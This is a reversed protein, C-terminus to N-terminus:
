SGIFRRANNIGLRHNIEDDLMEFINLDAELANWSEASLANLSEDIIPMGLDNDFSVGFDRISNKVGIMLKTLVDTDYHDLRQIDIFFHQM